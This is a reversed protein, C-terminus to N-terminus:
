KMKSPAFILTRTKWARGAASSSFSAGVKSLIRSVKSLSVRIMGLGPIESGGDGEPYAARLPKTTGNGGIGELEGVPPHRPNSSPRCCAARRHREVSRSSAPHIVLVTTTGTTGRVIRQAGFGEGEDESRLKVPYFILWPTAVGYLCFRGGYSASKTKLAVLLASPRQM